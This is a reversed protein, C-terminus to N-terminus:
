KSLGDGVRGGGVEGRTVVLTLERYNLTQKKDQRQAKGKINM